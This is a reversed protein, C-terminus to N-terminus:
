IVPYFRVGTKECMRRWMDQHFELSDRSTQIKFDDRSCQHGVALLHVYLRFQTNLSADRGEHPQSNYIQQTSFYDKMIQDELHSVDPLRWGWYVHMILNVDDYYASNATECLADLMMQRSTGIKKGDALLAQAQVDSGISKQIKTYYADLQDYLRDPPKNPQKGQYRILAKEFNEWDEYNNRNGINVRNSDKYLTYLSLNERVVGCECTCLGNEEDIDVQSFDVGCGPCKARIQNTQVVDLTIYNRAVELYEQIILLRKIIIKPDDTSEKNILKRVSVIGKSADSSVSKYIKLLPVSIRLYEKFSTRDQLEQLKIEYQQIDEIHRRYENITMNASVSQREWSLKAQIVSVQSYKHAFITMIAEHIKIINLDETYTAVVRDPADIESSDGIDPLKELELTESDCNEHITSSTNSLNLHTISINSSNRSLSSFMPPLDFGEGLVEVQPSPDLSFPSMQIQFDYPESTQRGNGKDRKRGSRSNSSVSRSLYTIPTRLGDPSPSYSSHPSSTISNPTTTRLDSNPSGCLPSLNPSSIGDFTHSSRFHNSNPSSHANNHGTSSWISTQASEYVKIQPRSTKASPVISVIPSKSANNLSVSCLSSIHNQTSANNDLYGLSKSKFEHCSPLPTGINPTKYDGTSAQSKKPGISVFAKAEM